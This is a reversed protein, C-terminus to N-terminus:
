KKSVCDDLNMMAQMVVTLAAHEAAPLKGNRPSDGVNLIATALKPQKEFRDKQEGYMQTLIALEAGTPRRSTTLRFGTTLRDVLAR